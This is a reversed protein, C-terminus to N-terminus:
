RALVPDAGGSWSPGPCLGSLFAWATGSGLFLAATTRSPFGEAKGSFEDLRVTESSCEFESTFLTENGRATFKPRPAGTGPRLLVRLGCPYRSILRTRCGRSNSHGLVAVGRRPERNMAGLRPQLAMSAEHVTATSALPSM